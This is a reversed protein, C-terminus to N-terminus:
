ILENVPKGKFFGYYVYLIPPFIIWILIEFIRGGKYESFFYQLRVKEIFYWIFLVIFCAGLIMIKSSYLASVGAQLQTIVNYLEEESIANLDLSNIQNTYIMLMSYYNYVLLGIVLLLALLIAVVLIGQKKHHCIEAFKITRFFPIFGIWGKINHNKFIGFYGISSVLYILFFSLYYVFNSEM